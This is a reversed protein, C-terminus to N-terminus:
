LNKHKNKLDNYEEISTKFEEDEIYLSLARNVLKQLSFNNDAIDQKFKTHLEKLVKVSTLKLEDNMYLMM